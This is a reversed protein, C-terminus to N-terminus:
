INRLNKSYAFAEECIETVSSPIIIKELSSNSFACKGISILESNGPFTVTEISTSDKFANEMIFKVIFEDGECIISRPVFINKPYPSLKIFLGATKEQENLVYLLGDIMIINQQTLLDFNNINETLCSNLIAAKVEQHSKIKEDNILIEIIHNYNSNKENLFVKKQYLQKELEYKKWIFKCTATKRYLLIIDKMLDFEKSLKEYEHINSKNIDPLERDMWYKIFSEFVEKSVDSKVEYQSKEILTTYIITNIDDLFRFNSPISFIESGLKLKFM